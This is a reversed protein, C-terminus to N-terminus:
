VDDEDLRTRLTTLARFQLQKVAGESRGLEAAIEKISRQGVFRLVVVERQDAPLQRVLGFLAARREVAELEDTVEADLDAVPTTHDRSRGILEHSAIKILWAAFPVGRWEFTPLGALAKQFVTATVDEAQERGSTRRAVYAYVTDFHSEYLAAFRRPDAQADEVQSREIALRAAQPDPAV